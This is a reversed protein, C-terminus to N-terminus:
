SHQPNLGNRGRQNRSLKIRELVPQLGFGDLRAHEVGFADHLSHNVPQM